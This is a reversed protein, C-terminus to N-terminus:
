FDLAAFTVFFSTECQKFNDFRWFIMKILNAYLFLVIEHPKTTTDCLEWVFHGFIPIKLSFYQEFGLFNLIPCNLFWSVKCM